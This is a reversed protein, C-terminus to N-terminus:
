TFHDMVVLVNEEKGKGPKLCLYDIHVLELPHTVVINEIPAWKQKAKFTACQYCREVHEKVQTAMWPWFFCDCMLNLMCKLGLHSVEDPCGRLTTEWHMALLVLQFQNEQSNKPLLKRYLVGQRLKLHSCEQLFMCLKPPDTPKCPTGDPRRVTMLSLVPGARQAQYWDDATMCTVLLGDGVMDLIHLSCSYVEIPSALGNLTAEQM